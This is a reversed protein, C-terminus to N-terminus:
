SLLFNIPYHSYNFVPVERAGFRLSRIRAVILNELQADHFSSSVLECRIVTGDPAISLSVVVKGSTMGPTRRAISNFLALLGGKDRDFVWQVEKLSRQAGAGAGPTGNDAALGSGRAGFGGDVRAGHHEGLQVGGSRASLDPGGAGIGGSNSAATRSVAGAAAHGNGSGRPPMAADLSHHQTIVDPLAAGFASLATHLAALAATSSGGRMGGGQARRRPERSLAPASRHPTPAPRARPPTPLPVPMSRHRPPEPILRVYQPLSAPPPTAAVDTLKYVGAAIGLVVIPVAIEVCVRRFRSADERQLLDGQWRISYDSM